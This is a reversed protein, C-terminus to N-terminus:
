LRRARRRDGGDAAARVPRGPLGGRAGALDGDARVAHVDVPDGGADLRVQRAHSQRLADLRVPSERDDGDGPHRSGIAVLSQLVGRGSWAWGNGDRAGGWAADAQVRTAWAM